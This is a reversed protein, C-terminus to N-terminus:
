RRVELRFLARENATVLLVLLAGAALFAWPIRSTLGQEEQTRVARADEPLSVFASDGLLHRILVRKEDSPHLPVIRLSFGDRRLDALIPVLRATEDPLIELDSILVISGRTSGERELAARAVRLGESIRTGARFEEWPNPPPLQTPSAIFFRLFPRLERGPTGPPLLEYAADSFVVLGSREDTRVLKEVTARFGGEYVSASLDLVVVGETDSAILPAHRVDYRGAVLIALALVLCLALALGGRVLTTRRVPSGAVAAASTPIAGRHEPRRM